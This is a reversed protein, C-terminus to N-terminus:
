DDEMVHGPAVESLNEERSVLLAWRLLEREEWAHGLRM